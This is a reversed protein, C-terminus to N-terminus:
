NNFSTYTVELKLKDNEGGLLKAYSPKLDHQVGTMTKNGSSSASDYTVTVPILLVKNWDPNDKNWQTEWATGDWSKGGQAQAKNRASKKENICTAVLRAINSFTYQNPSVSNHMTIFSTINDPLQNGEFFSKLDKKRILLVTSPVDMNYKYKKEQDYNTFSLKVGNLTDKDLKQYINDFPLTAETFIGAPSKIYTHDKEEVKEKILDSNSFHNAQIVEKTSAFATAWSYRLSDQSENPAKRKLAVGLSDLVHFCFQFQMAVQDVYLITGDSKDSKIYVGKFINNIFANSNKFYEPHKRYTQLMNNGFTKGLDLAVHPSYIPQGNSDKAKRVSDTISEDYASYTKRGLLTSPNYYEEPNINTYRNHDLKKNLQYISMQCANLSDGFSSSYFMVLRCAVVSDGALIGSAKKNTNNYVSPFSFDDTCNLETLFSGEYYGFDPDRFKGVYGVSTKAFVSDALISYTSVDFTETNAKINDTKPLMGMGLTGTTDDCGFCTLLTAFLLLGIYKLRM